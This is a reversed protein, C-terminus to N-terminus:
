NPKKILTFFYKFYLFTIEAIQITSFNLSKKVIRSILVVFYTKKERLAQVCPQFVLRAHALHTWCSKKIPPKENSTCTSAPQEIVIYCCESECKTLQIRLNNKIQLTTRLDFKNRAWLFCCESAIVIMELANALNQCTYHYM